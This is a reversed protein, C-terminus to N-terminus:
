LEGILLAIVFAWVPMETPWIEISIVGIVFMLAFLTLYWRYYPTANCQSGKPTIPIERVM